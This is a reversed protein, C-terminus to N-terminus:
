KQNYPCNCPPKPGRHEFGSGQPGFKPHPRKKHEKEFKKRGEEKMKKLEKQQKKTLIAEFEKMNKMRLEHAEKKLAGIEKNIQELRAKQDQDVIRSRRVADAEQHKEKIKEMIPKMKEFGKQRIEKAQAKQEETLQLRNEFETHRKEFDPGKHPRKVCQETKVSPTTTPTQVNDQANVAVTGAFILVSAITLAKKIM